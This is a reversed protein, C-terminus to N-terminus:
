DDAPRVSRTPGSARERVKGRLRAIQRPSVAPTPLFADLAQLRGLGRLLRILNETSVAEGSEARRLTRESVGSAAALDSTRQNQQLRLTRLRTGLERLVDPTRSTALISGM